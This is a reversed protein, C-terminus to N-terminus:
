KLLLVKYGQRSVSQINGVNAKGIIEIHRNITLDESSGEPQSDGTYTLETGSTIGYATHNRSRAALNADRAKQIAAPRDNPEPLKEQYYTQRIASDAEQFTTTSIQANAAMKGEMISDDLSSIGVLTLVLLIVLSVALVAGRQHRQSATTNFKQIRMTQSEM